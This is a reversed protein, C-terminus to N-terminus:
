SGIDLTPVISKISGSCFSSATIRTTVMKDVPRSRHLSATIWSTGAVMWGMARAGGPEPDAVPRLSCKASTAVARRPWWPFQGCPEPRFWPWFRM